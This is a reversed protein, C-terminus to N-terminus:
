DRTIVKWYKECDSINRYTEKDHDLRINPVLLYRVYISSYKISVVGIIDRDRKYIVIDGNNMHKGIGIYNIL